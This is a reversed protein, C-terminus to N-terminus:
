EKDEESSRRLENTVLCDEEVMKSYYDMGDSFGKRYCKLKEFHIYIALCVILCVYVLVKVILM